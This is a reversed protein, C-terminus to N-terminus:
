VKAAEWGECMKYRLKIERRCSELCARELCVRFLNLALAPPPSPPAPRRGRSPQMRNPSPTNFLPTAQLWYCRHRDGEAGVANQLSLCLSFSTLSPLPYVSSFDKGALQSSAFIEPLPEHQIALKDRTQGRGGRGDSLFLRQRVPIKREASTSLRKSELHKNPQEM